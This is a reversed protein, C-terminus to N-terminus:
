DHTVHEKLHKLLDHSLSILNNARSLSEPTFHGNALDDIDAALYNTCLACLLCAQGPTLKQDNELFTLLPQISGIITNIERSLFETEHDEGETWSSKSSKSNTM